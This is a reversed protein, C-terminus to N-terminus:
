FSIWGPSTRERVMFTSLVDPSYSVPIVEPKEGFWGQSEWGKPIMMMGQNLSLPYYQSSLHLHPYSQAEWDRLFPVYVMRAPAIKSPELPRLDVLLDHGVLHPGQRVHKTQTLILTYWLTIRWPWKCLQIHLRYRWSSLGFVSRVGSRDQQIVELGWSQIIWQDGRPDHGDPASGSLLVLTM